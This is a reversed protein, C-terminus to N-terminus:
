VEERDQGQHRGSVARSFNRNDGESHLDEQRWRGGVGVALGEAMGTLSGTSSSVPKVPVTAGKVPTSPTQQLLKEKKILGEINLGM